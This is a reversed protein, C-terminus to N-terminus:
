TLRHHPREAYLSAMGDGLHHGLDDRVDEVYQSSVAQVAQDIKAQEEASVPAAAVHAPLPDMEGADFWILEDNRCVELQESKAAAGEPLPLDIARMPVECMPCKSAGPQASRALDWIEHVEADSVKNYAETVTAGFGHGAPCVWSNFDGAATLSLAANCTP